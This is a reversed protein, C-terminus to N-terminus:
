LYEPLKKRGGILDEKLGLVVFMNLFEELSTLYSCDLGTVVGRLLAAQHDQRVFIELAGRSMRGM